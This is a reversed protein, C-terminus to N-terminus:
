VLKVKKYYGRVIVSVNCGLWHTLITETYASLFYLSPAQFRYATLNIWFTVNINNARKQIILENVGPFTGLILKRIYLDQLLPTQDKQISGRSPWSHTVGLTYAKKRRFTFCIFFFTYLICFNITILWVWMM